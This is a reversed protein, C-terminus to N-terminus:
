AREGGVECRGAAAVARLDVPGTSSISQSRVSHRELKAVRAMMEAQEVELRELLEDREQALAKSRGQLERCDQRLEDITENRQVLEARMGGMRAVESKLAAREERWERQDQLFRAREEQWARREEEMTALAKAHEQRLAELAAESTRNNLAAEEEAQAAAAKRGEERERASAKLTALERQLSSVRAKEPALVEAALASWSATQVGSSTASPPASSPPRPPLDPPLDRPKPSVRKSSRNSALMRNIPSWENRRLQGAQAAGINMM